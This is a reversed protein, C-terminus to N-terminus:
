AFRLVFLVFLLWGVWWGFCWLDGVVVIVIFLILLIVVLYVTLRLFVFVFCLNVLLGFCVELSCM